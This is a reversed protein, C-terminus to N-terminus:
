ARVVVKDGAVTVASEKLPSSAPPKTVSGDKISFASGHCKCIIAGDAIESVPCGKHTCIKSFAKFDGKTPQTVVYDADKMIVGGGVPVDSTAVSPGSPVAPASPKPTSAKTASPPASSAPTSPAPASTAPAASEVPAPTGADSSCAALAAGGGALVVVGATRLVTRRSPSADSRVPSAHDSM